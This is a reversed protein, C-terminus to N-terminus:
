PVVLAAQQVLFSPVTHCGFRDRRLYCLPTAAIDDEIREATDAAIRDGKSPCTLM